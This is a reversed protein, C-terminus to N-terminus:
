AQHATFTEAEFSEVTFTRQGQWALNLADVAAQAKAQSTYWPGIHGGEVAATFYRATSTFTVM